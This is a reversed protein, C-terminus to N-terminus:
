GRGLQAGRDRGHDVGRLECGHRRLRKRRRCRRRDHRERRQRNRPCRQGQFRGLSLFPHGHEEIRQAVALPSALFGDGHKVLKARLDPLCTVLQGRPPFLEFPHPDL